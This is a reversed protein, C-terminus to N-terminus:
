HGLNKVFRRIKEFWSNAQPNHRNRNAEISDSFSKLLEKQQETLAVPTEIQIKCIIDGPYHSRIGKVGKGRLRFSAGTQTEPPIKLDVEGGITPAKITAGMCAQAFSIPIETHLDKGERTFINHKAIEIEVFLDGNPGGDIGAEGENALRIRNGTDVGAPIQVSIKKQKNIRKNGHCKKCPDKIITGEGHCKPCTQQISIFGQQMRVQGMGNCYSCKTVNQGGKGHCSDCTTLATFQIIKDVGQIAEELTINLKYGLDSGRRQTSQQFPNGGFAEEFIKGFIDQNFDFGAGGPGGAGGDDNVGAHGFQDYLQKKNPDSLVNYAENIYKFKEDAEATKNRDPHYKMAMRRYAKKITDPDAGKNIGLTAYYDEKSM